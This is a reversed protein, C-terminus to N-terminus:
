PHVSSSHLGARELPREIHDAGNQNHGAWSRVGPHPTGRKTHVRCRGRRLRGARPWGALYRNTKSAKHQGKVRKWIDEHEHIQVEAGSGLNRGHKCDKLKSKGDGGM